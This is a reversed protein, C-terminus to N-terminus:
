LYRGYDRKRSIAVLAAVNIKKCEGCNCEIPHHTNIVIDYLGEIHAIEMYHNAGVSARHDWGRRGATFFRKCGMLCATRVMNGLNTDSKLNLCLIAYTEDTQSM